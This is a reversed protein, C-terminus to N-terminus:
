LNNSTCIHGDGGQDPQCCLPCHAADAGGGEDGSHKRYGACPWAEVGADVSPLEVPPVYDLPSSM